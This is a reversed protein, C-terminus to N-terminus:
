KMLHKNDNNLYWNKLVEMQKLENEVLINLYSTVAKNILFTETKKDAEVAQNLENIFTTWLKSTNKFVFSIEKLVKDNIMISLENLFYGYLKRAFGGGSLKNELVKIFKISDKFNPSKLRDTAWEKADNQFKLLSDIGYIEPIPSDYFNLIVKKIAYMAKDIIQDEGLVKSKIAYWNGDCIQFVDTKNGPYIIDYFWIDKLQKHNLQMQDSGDTDILTYIKNVPDYGTITIYHFGMNFGGNESVHSQNNIVQQLRHRNIAANILIDNELFQLVQNEFNQNFLFKGRFLYNNLNVSLGEITQDSIGAISFLPIRSLRKNDNYSFIFSGSLGLIFANSLILGYYALNNRYTSLRCDFGPIYTSKFKKTLNM